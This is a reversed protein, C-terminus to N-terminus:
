HDNFKTGSVIDEQFYKIKQYLDNSKYLPSDFNRQAIDIMERSRDASSVNFGEQILLKTLRGTGCPLDLVQAKPPIYKLANTIAKKERWDRFHGKRFESPYKSAVEEMFFRDCNKLSYTTEM